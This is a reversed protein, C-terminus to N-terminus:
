LSKFKGIMEIKNPVEAGCDHCMGNKTYYNGDSHIHFILNNNGWFCLVWTENLEIINEDKTKMEDM